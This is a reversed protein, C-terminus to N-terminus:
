EEITQSPEKLIMSFLKQVDTKRKKNWESIFQARELTLNNKDTILDVLSRRFDEASDAVLFARNIGAEMGYAGTTTTVLKKGYSLSEINKIKLGTGKLVPNIVIEGLRYFDELKDIHDKLVINPTDSYNNRIYKCISGGVIFKTDPFETLLSPFVEKLFFDIAEENLLYGAGLYLLNNSKSLNDSNNEIQNPICLVVSSTVSRFHTADKSHIAIVIDARDLGKKEAKPRLSYWHPLIKWRNSLIDHTDIIKICRKPMYTLLRSYIVYNVIVAHYVNEKIVQKFKKVLPGDIWHDIQYNLVRDWGVIGIKRLIRNYVNKPIRSKEVGHIHFRDIGFYEVTQKTEFAKNESIFLFELEFNYQRFIECMDYLRKRNGAVVPLPCCPSVILIKAM